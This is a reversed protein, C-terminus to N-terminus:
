ITSNNELQYRQGDTAVTLNDHVTFACRQRPLFGVNRRPSCLLNVTKNPNRNLRAGPFYRKYKERSKQCGTRPEVCETRVVPAGPPGERGNDRHIVSFRRRDTDFYSWFGGQLINSDALLNRHIQVKSNGWFEVENKTGGQSLFSSNRAYGSTAEQFSRRETGKLLRRIRPSSTLGECTRRAMSNDM